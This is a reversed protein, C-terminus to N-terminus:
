QSRKLYWENAAFLLVGAVAIILIGSMAGSWEIGRVGDRPADSLLHPVGDGISTLSIM